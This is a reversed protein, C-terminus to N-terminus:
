ARQLLGRLSATHFIHCNALGVMWAREMLLPISSRISGHSIEFLAHKEPDYSSSYQKRHSMACAVDDAGRNQLHVKCNLKMLRVCSM